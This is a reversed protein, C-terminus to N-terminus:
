SDEEEATWRGLYGRSRALALLRRWAAPRLARAGLRLWGRFSRGQARIRAKQGAFPIPAGFDSPATPVPARGGSSGRLFAARAGETMVLAAARAVHRTAFGALDRWAREHLQEAKERMAIAATEEEHRAALLLVNAKRFEQAAWTETPYELREPHDLYPREHEVMWAAYTLLSARAYVYGDDLHGREAEIDLYRTLAVLFMTYSWRREADLLDLKAPDDAPHVCRRILDRVKAMYREDRVLLWADLLAEISNASARAPGARDAAVFMSVLGTPGDDVLGLVNRAGDDARLVWEALGVVADRADPDGTLLHYYRLGTAYNHESGPGGGYPTRNDPVNSGSYTRHTATSADVYHDTHWFLGGNYAAKDRSTHYIDIDMVHRALPDALEFWRRDGTRMMQLLAGGLLDFQNNYHSIVPRPGRCYVDEHDAWVDGYNRWGYEDIVDRKAYFSTSGAVVGELYDALRPDDDKAAPSLYAVAGSAAYWRPAASAFVPEHAWDLADGGRDEGADFRLWVTHTKREGPQLEFEDDWQGPFLGIAVGREDAEIAKPFQQWFEPVAVTLSTAGDDCTVIPSARLGEREAGDVRMRYGRFRCPVRGHRNVHNRSQWNEGGSSDQHIEVAGDDSERAPQDPEAKIALTRRRGEPLDVILRLADFLFANPDGMDWLGGRHRASLPNHIALSLRALSTGAYLSIRAYFRLPRGHTLRGDLRITTRVPGTTEVRVGRITAPHSRGDKDLVVRATAADGSASGGGPRCRFLVHEEGGFEFVFGGTDVAITKGERRLSMGRAGNEESAPAPGEESPVIAVVCETAGAQLEPAMYDLLLWRVSGDSWRDLVQTQAPQRSGQPAALWADTADRLMGKAFPLGVTVPQCGARVDIRSHLRLPVQIAERNRRECSAAPKPEARPPDHPRPRNM